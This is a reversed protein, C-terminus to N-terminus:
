GERDILVQLLRTIHALSADVRGLASELRDLARGHEALTSTHESQTISLAQLLHRGAETAAAIKSQDRDQSARLGAEMGLREEIAAVREELSSM